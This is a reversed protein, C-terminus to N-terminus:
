ALSSKHLVQFEGHRRLVEVEVGDRTRAILLDTFGGAVALNVIKVTNVFRPLFRCVFLVKKELVDIELGLSAQLLLFV